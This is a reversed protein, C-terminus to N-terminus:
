REYFGGVIRTVWPLAALGCSTEWATDALRGRNDKQLNGMCAVETTGDCKGLALGVGCTAKPDLAKLAAEDLGAKTACAVWFDYRDDQTFGIRAADCTKCGWNDCWGGTGYGPCECDGICQYCRDLLSSCNGMCDAVACFDRVCVGTWPHTCGADPTCPRVRPNCIATSVSACDADTTCAKDMPVCTGTFADCGEGDACGSVVLPNIDADCLDPVCRGANPECVEHPRCDADASCRCQSAFDNRMMAAALWRDPYDMCEMTVNHQSRAVLYRVHFEPVPAVSTQGQGLQAPIEGSSLGGDLAMLVQPYAVSGCTGPIPLCADALTVLTPCPVKGGCDWWPTEGAQAADHFFFVPSGGADWVALVTDTWWPSQQRWYVHVSQGARVPIEVELPLAYVIALDKGTATLRFTVQRDQVGDCYPTDCFTDQEPGKYTVVADDSVLANFSPQVETGPASVQFPELADAPTCSGDPLVTTDAPADTSTDLPEAEPSADAGSDPLPADADTGDAALDPSPDATLDRPLDGPVDTADPVDIPLDGAGPDSGAKTGGCAAFGAAVLLAMGLVRIGGFAGM